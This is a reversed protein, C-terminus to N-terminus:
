PDMKRRHSILYMTKTSDLLNPITQFLLKERYLGIIFFDQLFKFFRSFDQFLAQCLARSGISAGEVEVRCALLEAAHSSQLRSSQYLNKDHESFAFVFDDSFIATVVVIGTGGFHLNSEEGLADAGEGLVELSVFVIVVTTTTEQGENGLTATEQVVELFEVVLAVLSEDLGEAQTLSRKLRM